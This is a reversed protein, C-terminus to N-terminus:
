FMMVEGASQQIVAKDGGIEVHVPPAVQRARDELGFANCLAVETDAAIADLRLLAQAVVDQFQLHSLAGQSKSLILALARDSERVAAAAEQRRHRSRAGIDRLSAELQDSFTQARGHLASASRTISPLLEVLAGALTQISANTEAVSRSLEKMENAIVAFGEAGVSIRSAEIRANLALMKAREAFSNVQAAARTIGALSREATESLRLQDSMERRLEAIFKGARGLERDVLDGLEDGAGGSHGGGLLERLRRIHTSAEEIITNLDAGAGMVERSTVETVERVREAIRARLQAIQGLVLDPLDVETSASM